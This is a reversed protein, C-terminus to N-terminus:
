EAEQWYWELEIPLCREEEALSRCEKIFPMYDDHYSRISKITMKRWPRLPFHKKLGKQLATDIPPHIVSVLGKRGEGALYVRTKLLTLGEALIRTEGEWFVIGKDPRMVWQRDAAHLYIPVGGFARSWEVMSSYYHPHSIAIASIGGMARIAEAV